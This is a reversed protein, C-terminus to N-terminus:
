LTGSKRAFSMWKDKADPGTKSAQLPSCETETLSCVPGRQTSPPHQQDGGRVLRAFPESLHLRTLGFPPRSSLCDGPQLLLRMPWEHPLTGLGRGAEFAAGVLDHSLHMVEQNRTSTSGSPPGTPFPEASLNSRGASGAATYAEQGASDGSLAPAGAALHEASSRDISGGAPSGGAERDDASGAMTTDAAQALPDSIAGGGYGVHTHGAAREGFSGAAM